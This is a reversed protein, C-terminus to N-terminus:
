PKKKRRKSWHRDLEPHRQLVCTVALAANGHGKSLREIAGGPGLKKVYAEVGAMQDPDNLDLHNGMSESYHTNDNQGTTQRVSHPQRNPNEQLSTKDDDDKHSGYQSHGNLVPKLRGDMDPIAQGAAVPSDLGDSVTIHGAGSAPPPSPATAVGSTFRRLRDRAQSRGRKRRHGSKNASGAPQSPPRDGTPLVEYNLCRRNPTRYKPILGQAKLENTVSSVTDNTLGTYRAIKDVGITAVKTDSRAAYALVILVKTQPGSLGSLVHRGVLWNPLAFWGSPYRNSPSNPSRGEAM